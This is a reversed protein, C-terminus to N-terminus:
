VRAFAVVRVAIIVVKDLRTPLSIGWHRVVSAKRAELISVFVGGLNSQRDDQPGPVLTLQADVIVTSLAVATWAEPEPPRLWIIRVRMQIRTIVWSIM